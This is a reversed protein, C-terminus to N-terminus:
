EITKLLKEQDKYEHDQQEKADLLGELYKITNQM